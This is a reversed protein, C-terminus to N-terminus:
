QLMNKKQNIVHSPNAYAKGLLLHFADIINVLFM